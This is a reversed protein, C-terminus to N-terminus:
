FKAMLNEVRKMLAGESGSGLWVDRVIGKADVFLNTPLGALGFTAALRSQGVQWDPDQLFVFHYERHGEIFAAADPKADDTAIAVVRLRDKYRDILKQFTPMERVCPGCWTAWFTVVTPTRRLTGLAVPKARYDEVTADPLPKGILAAAPSIGQASGASPASTLVVMIAAFGVPCTWMWTRKM